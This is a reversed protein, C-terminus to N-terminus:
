GKEAGDAKKQDAKGDAGAGAKDKDKDDDQSDGGEGDGGEESPDPAAVQAKPSPAEGYEDKLKKKLHDLLVAEIYTPKDQIALGVRVYAIGDKVTPTLELSAQYVQGDERYEFLLYGDKEDKELIPFRNDVRVFRVATRWVQSYRYTLLRKTDGHGAGSFSAILVFAILTALSRKM